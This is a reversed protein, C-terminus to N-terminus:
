DNGSITSSAMSVVTLCVTSIDRTAISKSVNTAACASNVVAVAVEEPPPPIPAPNAPVSLLRATCFFFTVAPAEDATEEAANGFEDCSRTAM